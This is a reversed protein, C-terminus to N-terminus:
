PAHNPRSIAAGQIPVARRQQEDGHEYQMRRQLVLDQVAMRKPVSAEIFEEARRAKSQVQGVVTKGCGMERVVIRGVQGIREGIRFAIIDPQFVPLAEPRDPAADQLDVPAQGAPHQNRGQKEGQAQHTVIQAEDGPAIARNQAGPKKMKCGHGDHEHEDEVDAANREPEIGKGTVGRERDERDTGEQFMAGSARDGLPADDDFAAANGAKQKKVIVQMGQMM